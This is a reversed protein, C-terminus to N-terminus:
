GKLVGYGPSYMPASFYTSGYASGYGLQREARKEAGRERSRKYLDGFSGFADGIGQQMAEARASDINGRMAEGAQRAAVTMDVGSQALAFLNQKSALDSQRLSNGAGQARREAELTGRLYEEGILKKTDVDVSGMTQGSRAMAFKSQRQADANKKNLDKSLFERTANILDEIQGERAPSNYISEVRQQTRLIDRRRQEEAQQAERQQSGGGGGM